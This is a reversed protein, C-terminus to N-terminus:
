DPRISQLAELVEEPNADAAISLACLDGDRANWIFSAVGDLPADSVVFSLDGVTSGRWHCGSNIVLGCAWRYHDIVNIAPQCSAWDEISLDNSAVFALGALGTRSLGRFFNALYSATDEADEPEFPVPEADGHALSYAHMALTAPMPVTLIVPVDPSSACLSEALEAVITQLGADALLVRVPHLPRTKEAMAALCQPNATLWSDIICALPLQQLSPNLLGQAKRLYALCATSELWPVEGGALLKASYAQADLWLGKGNLITNLDPM